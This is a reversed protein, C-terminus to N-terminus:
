RHPPVKRNGMDQTQVGERKNSELIDYMEKGFQTEAIDFCSVMDPLYYLGAHPPIEQSLSVLESTEKLPVPFISFQGDEGALIIKKSNRLGLLVVRGNHEGTKTSRGHEKFIVISYCPMMAGKYIKVIRGATYTVGNQQFSKILSVLYIDRLISIKEGAAKTFNMEPTGDAYGPSLM